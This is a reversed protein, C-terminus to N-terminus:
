SVCKLKNGHDFLRKAYGPSGMATNLQSLTLDKLGKYNDYCTRVGAAYVKATTDAIKFGRLKYIGCIEEDSMVGHEIMANVIEMGVTARRYKVKAM